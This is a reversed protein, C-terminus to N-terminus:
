REAFIDVRRNQRSIETDDKGEHIMGGGVIQIREGEIGKSKLYNAASAARKKALGQNYSDPGKGDTYGVIKLKMLPERKAANVVSDLTLNAQADLTDKAFPFYVAGLEKQVPCGTSDVQMNAPTDPCQDIGDAIGDGDSDIPCGHTDVVARLPTGPCRDNLDSIGDRDSDPCGHSDVRAGPATAQCKDLYDPIGDMDSDQPCGREDVAVGAPTQACEDKQDPVGDGDADSKTLACLTGGVIAGGLAGWGGAAKSEIAGLLGGAGGGLLACKGWRAISGDQACGTILLSLTLLSATKTLTIPHM